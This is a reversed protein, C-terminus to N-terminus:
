CLALEYMEEVVEVGWRTAPNAQSRQFGASRYLHASAELGSVTWLIVREYAASRSFALAEAVLRQGLGKGRTEPAVLFWRLQAVTEREAVIAISGVIEDGCEAVWLRERPSGRKVFQALPEAVYAEFTADFGRERAYVLGHMTVIAGLDGPRLEHRLTVSPPMSSLKYRVSTQSEM